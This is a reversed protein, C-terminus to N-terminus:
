QLRPPRPRRWSRVRRKGSSTGRGYLVYEASDTARDFPLTVTTKDTVASYTASTVQTEDLRSDLRMKIGMGTDDDISLDMKELFFETGRATAIMLDSVSADGGMIKNEGDLTWKHIAQQNRQRNEFNYNYVYLSSDELDTILVLMSHEPVNVIKKVSGLIYKPAQSTVEESGFRLRGKGDPESFYEHLASYAGKRHTFYARDGAVVPKASTDMPYKSALAFGVTAATLPQGGSAMQFQARDNSVFITDNFEWAHRLPAPDTQTIEVDIPASDLLQTVTTRWFNFLDGPQSMVVTSDTLFGLRGRHFFADRIPTGIFSPEPNTEADGSPCNEFTLEAFDYTGAGTKILVHPMTTPNIIYKRGPEPIEIWASDVDSYEVFYNDYETSLDGLIEVQYGERATPPLNQPADVRGDILVLADNGEGDIVELFFDGSTRDIMILSGMTSATMASTGNIDAALDAAITITNTNAATAPTYTGSVILSTKESNAWVNITYPVNILSQRVWVLARAATTVPFTSTLMAPSVTTNIIFTYDSITVCKLETKPDSISNIYNSNTATVSVTAEAGDRDFVKINGSGDLMLFGQDDAARDFEHIHADGLSTGGLDAVFETPPRKDLGLDASLVANEVVEAHSPLRLTFPQGSRGQIFSPIEQKVIPM